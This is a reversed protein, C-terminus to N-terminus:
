ALHTCIFSTSDWANSPVFRTPDTSDHVHMEGHAQLAAVSHMPTQGANSLMFANNEAHIFHGFAPASLDSAVREDRAQSRSCCVDCTILHFLSAAFSRSHKSSVPVNRERRPSGTLTKSSAAATEFLKKQFSISLSNSNAFASSEWPCPEQRM